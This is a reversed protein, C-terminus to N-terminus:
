SVGDCISQGTPMCIDLRHSLKALAAVHSLAVLQGDFYHYLAPAEALTYSDRKAKMDLAASDLYKIFEEM